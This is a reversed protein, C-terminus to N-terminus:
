EDDNSSLDDSLNISSQTIGIGTGVLALFKQLDTAPANSVYIVDNDRMLFRQATFYNAPDELNLRYIVPVGAASMTAAAAPPRAAAIAAYLDPREYRFVFVGAADARSDLLGGARGVAEALTLREAAFPFVANRATAGFATFVRQDIAVHLRDGPRLFINQSPERILRAMSIERSEGGRTLRIFTDYAPARSGGAGALVDTLRDGALTLPVRGASGVEGTVTVFTSPGSEVTVIAQPEIAKDALGAVIAREVEAPTRGAAAVSGVYPISITGDRAVPQPPLAVNKSGGGLTGTEGSFLGGAAAEFIVVRVVDGVGIRLDAPGGASAFADAFAPAEAAALQEAIGADLGIVDFAPAAAREEAMVASTPPGAAPLAACGCLAACLAAVLPPRAALLNRM